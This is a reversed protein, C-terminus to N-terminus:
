HSRLMFFFFLSLSLSLSLNPIGISTFQYQFGEAFNGSIIGLLLELQWQSVAIELDPIETFLRQNVFSPHPEESDDARFELPIQLNFALTAKQLLHETITDETIRKSSVM